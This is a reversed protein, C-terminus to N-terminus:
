DWAGAPRGALDFAATIVAGRAGVEAPRGVIAALGERRLEAVAGTAFGSGYLLATVTGANGAHAPRIGALSLAATPEARGAADIAPSGAALAHTETPGGNDALPGLRPDIPAAPTGVRDTAVPAFNCDAGNGILNYGASQMRGADSGCDPGGAPADGAIARNGALITNALTVIGQTGPYKFIGGG